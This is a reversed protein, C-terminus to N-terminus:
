SVVAKWITGLGVMMSDYCNTICQKRLSWIDCANLYQNKNGQRKRASKEWETSGIIPWLNRAISSINEFQQVKQGCLKECFPSGQRCETHITCKQIQTSMRHKLSLCYETNSIFPQYKLGFQKWLLILIWCNINIKISHEHLSDANVFILQQWKGQCCWAECNLRTDFRISIMFWCVIEFM